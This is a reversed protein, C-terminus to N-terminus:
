KFKHINKIKYRNFDKRLTDYSLEDEEIDYLDLFNQLTTKFDVGFNIENTIAETYLKERIERELAKSIQVSKKQDFEFGKRKAKDIGIKIFFYSIDSNERKYVYNRETKTNLTNLVVMGLLTSESAKYEDGYRFQLIKKVYSPVALRLTIQQM